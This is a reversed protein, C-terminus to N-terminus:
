NYRTDLILLRKPDEKETYPIPNGQEDLEKYYINQGNDLTHRKFVVPKGDKNNVGEYYFADNVTMFTSIQHPPMGSNEYNEQIEDVEKKTYYIPPAKKKNDRENIYRNYDNLIKKFIEPDRFFAIRFKYLNNGTNMVRDIFNIIEDPLDDFDNYDNLNIKELGKLNNSSCFLGGGSIQRKQNYALLVLLVIIVIISIASIIHNLKVYGPSFLFLAIFICLIILTALIFKQTKSGLPFM